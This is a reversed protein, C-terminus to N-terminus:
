TSYLEMFQVHRTDVMATGYLTTEGVLFYGGDEGLWGEGKQVMLWNVSKIVKCEISDWIFTIVYYTAESQNKWKAM